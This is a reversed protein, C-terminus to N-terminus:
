SEDYVALAEWFWVSEKNKLWTLFADPNVTGNPMTSPLVLQYVDATDTLATYAAEAYGKCRPSIGNCLARKRTWFDQVFDRGNLTEFAAVFAQSDRREQEVAEQNASHVDEAMLDFEEKLTTM